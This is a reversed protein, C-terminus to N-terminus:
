QKLNELLKLNQDLHHNVRIRFSEDDISKVLGKRKRYEQIKGDIDDVFTLPLMVFFNYFDPDNNVKEHVLIYGYLYPDKELFTGSERYLDGLNGGDHHKRCQIFYVLSSYNGGSLGLLLNEYTKSSCYEINSQALVVSNALSTILVILVLLIKFFM